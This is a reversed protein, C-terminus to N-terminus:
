KSATNPLATGDGRGVGSGGAVQMSEANSYQPWMFAYFAIFAFCFMPVIFGRSMGYLDAVHGMLKPLMAGGMIAM